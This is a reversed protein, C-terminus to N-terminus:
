GGLFRSENFNKKSRLAREIAEENAESKKIFYYEIRYRNLTDVYGDDGQTKDQGSGMYIIFPPEKPSGFLGYRVPLGTIELTKMIETKAM